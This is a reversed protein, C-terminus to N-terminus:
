HHVLLMTTSTKSGTNVKVVIMQNSYKSLKLLHNNQGNSYLTIKETNLLKGSLDYISITVVQGITGDMTLTSEYRAPNPSLMIKFDLQDVPQINAIRCTLKSPPQCSLYDNIVKGGDFSNNIKDAAENFQSLSYSTRSCGGIKKNAEVLLQNVTLGIFVGQTIYLDKLNLNAPAFNLIAADMKVNLTLAVLQGAFVNFYNARTPNVLNGTPLARPTSGSPLFNTVAQASTLKLTNGGACGILLGTPFVSSFRGPYNLYAGPNGGHPVAGWGGQTFTKFGKCPCNITLVLYAVSDCGVANAGPFRKSYTGTLSYNAGNWVYPVTCVTDIKRSTTTDKVTLVLYAVSDCGVANAAPFRKSYTGTLSYNACNWVYPLTNNCVAISTRSTTRDKVKLVLYAVSDCGVANAAPFRKSYTGTLSYNAGNWVYPLTNKCVAVPTSSTTTDKVTLVLYAVSDCGVANSAPFRKSYTGTLSYNAGNWVYPLTNNCVAVPTSSTATDKVTLVLYAVSDCGVANAAPFRKSYTGTLSYNDGNWSYPLTNKCVAVPTSSTATDKVTLVLYAVSDCGVANAAPFRKSYTGTLSYNAGNWSYPLTNNCVAVPTSSTTTDKVTLVFTATSDCGYQNAASFTTDYTGSLSYNKGNWLYPLTNNCVAVELTSTTKPNVLVDVFCSSNLDPNAYTQNLTVRYSQTSATVDITALGNASSFTANTTGIDGYGSLVWQYTANAPVPDPTGTYTNLSGACITTPGLVTCTGKSGILLTVSSTTACKSSDKPTATVIFDLSQSADAVAATYTASSTNGNTLVGAANLPKTWVYTYDSVVGPSISNIILNASHSASTLDICSIGIIPTTCHPLADAVMTPTTPSTGSQRDGDACQIYDNSPKFTADPTLSLDYNKGIPYTACITGFVAGDPITGLTMLLPNTPTSGSSVITTGDKKYTTYSISTAFGTEDKIAWRGESGGYDLCVSYTGNNNCKVSTKEYELTCTAGGCGYRSKYVMNMSNPFTTKSEDAMWMALYYNTPKKFSPVTITTWGNGSLGCAPHIIGSLTINSFNINNCNGSIGDNLVPYKTGTTTGTIPQADSPDVNYLVFGINENSVIQFQYTGAFPRIDFNLWVIDEGPTPASLTNGFTETTMSYCDTKPLIAAIPNAAADYTGKFAQLGSETEASSACRVIGKPQLNPSSFVLSEWTNAVTNDTTNQRWGDGAFWRHATCPTASGVAALNATNIKYGIENYVIGNQTIYKQDQLQIPKDNYAYEHNKNKSVNQAIMTGQFFLMTYLFVARSGYLLNLERWKLLLKKKTIWTVVKKM